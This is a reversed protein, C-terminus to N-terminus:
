EEIGFCFEKLYSGADDIGNAFAKNLCRCGETINHSEVLAVGKYFIMTINTPDLKLGANLYTLALPYAEEDLSLSGAYLYPSMYSKDLAIANDFHVIASDSENEYYYSIGTYLELEANNGKQKLRYLDKRADAFKGNDLLATARWRLLEVNTSDHKLLVNLGELQIEPAGADRGIFAKLLSAQHFDPDVAIFSDLDKLAADYNTLSYFCLARKYLIPYAEREVPKSTNIIKSYLKVAGEYDERALLTDAEVELAKWHQAHNIHSTLSFMVVMSVHLLVRPIM